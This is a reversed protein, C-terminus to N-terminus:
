LLNSLKCNVIQSSTEKLAPNTWHNDEKEGQFINISLPTGRGKSTRVRQAQHHDMHLHPSPARGVQNYSPQTLTMRGRSPDSTPYPEHSRNSSLPKQPNWPHDSEPTGWGQSRRSPFYTPTSHCSYTTSTHKVKYSVVLQKGVLNDWETDGCTRTTCVCPGRKRTKRM